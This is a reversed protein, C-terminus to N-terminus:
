RLQNLIYNPDQGTKQALEYYAKELNGNNNRIATLIENARPDKSIAQQLFAQPNTMSQVKQYMQKLPYTQPSVLGNLVPNM